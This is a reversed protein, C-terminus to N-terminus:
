GNINKAKCISNIAKIIIDPFGASVTRLNAFFQEQQTGSGHVDSVGKIIYLPIANSTCVQAIAGGEMDGLSCKVQNNIIDIDSDLCIFHDASALSSKELFELGLTDTSFYVSDYDQIYGIPVNDLQSLDFDFQCCKEITYYNLVNVSSNMGGCTGFNLIFDPKFKDILLQTSLAANVKGIGSIIIVIEHNNLSCSYATKDAIKIQKLNETKKLLAELESPLAVVIGIMIDGTFILTLIIVYLFFVTLSM